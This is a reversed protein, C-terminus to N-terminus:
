RTVLLRQIVQRMADLSTVIIVNRKAPFVLYGFGKDGGDEFALFRFDINRYTHDKFTEPGPSPARGRLLIELDRALDAEWRILGQMTRQPNLTKTILGFSAEARSWDAFLELPGSLNSVFEQPPTVGILGFFERANMAKVAGAGNKLHLVLRRMSNKTDPRLATQELEKLLESRRSVTIVSVNEFLFQAPMLSQGFEIENEPTENLGFQNFILFATGSLVIVGGIAAFIIPLRHPLTPRPPSALEDKKTRPSFVSFLTPKASKVFEAIDSRMTRIASQGDKKQGSVSDDSKSEPEFLEAM